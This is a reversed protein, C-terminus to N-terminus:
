RLFNIYVDLFAAKCHSPYPEQEQSMSYMLDPLASCDYGANPGLGLSAPPPPTILLLM